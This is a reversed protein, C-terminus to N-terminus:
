KLLKSYYMHSAYLAAAPNHALVRDKAVLTTVPAKSRKYFLSDHGVCLGILVNLDTGCENLIDAQALPMCLPDFEQGPRIRTEPGFGIESKDVAGVKCCVSFVKFGHQRFIKAAVDSEQILGACTAIGLKEAGLNRAFAITDEIRTWRLYGEAEARAAALALNRLEPDVRFEEAVSDVVSGYHRSPCYAPADEEITDAVCAQIRCDACFPEKAM